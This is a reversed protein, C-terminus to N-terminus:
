ALALTNVPEITLWEDLELGGGGLAIHLKSLARYLDAVAMSAADVDANEGVTLRILLRDPTARVTEKGFDHVRLSEFMHDLRPNSPWRDGAFEPELLLSLQGVRQIIVDPFVGSLFEDVIGLALEWHRRPFGLPQVDQDLLISLDTRLQMFLKAVDVPYERSREVTSIILHLNNILMQVPTDEVRLLARRAFAEILRLARDEADGIMRDSSM